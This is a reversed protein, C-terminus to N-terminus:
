LTAPETRVNEAGGTQCRRHRLRQALNAARIAPDSAGSAPGSRPSWDDLIMM